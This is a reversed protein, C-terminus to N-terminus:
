LGEIRTLSATSVCIFTSYVPSLLIFALKTEKEGDIGVYYELSLFSYHSKLSSFTVVCFLHGM